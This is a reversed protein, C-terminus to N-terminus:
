GQGALWKLQKTSVYRSGVLHEHVGARYVRWGRARLALVARYTQPAERWNQRPQGAGDFMEVQASM